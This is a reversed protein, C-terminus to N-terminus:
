KGEERVPYCEFDKDTQNYYSHFMICFPYNATIIEEEKGYSYFIYKQYRELNNNIQNQYWKLEKPCIAFFAQFSLYNM